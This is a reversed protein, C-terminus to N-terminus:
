RQTTQAARSRLLHRSQKSKAAGGNCLNWGMIKLHPRGLRFSSPMWIRGQSCPNSCHVFTTTMAVLPEQPPNQVVRVPSMWQRGITNQSFSHFLTLLPAVLLSLLKIFRLSLQSSPQHEKVFWRSGCPPPATEVHTKQPAVVPNPYWTGQTRSSSLLAGEPTVFQQRSDIGAWFYCKGLPSRDPHHVAPTNGSWEDVGM